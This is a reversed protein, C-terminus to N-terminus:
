TEVGIEKPSFKGSWVKAIMVGVGSKTSHLSVQTV